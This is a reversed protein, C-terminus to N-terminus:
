FDIPSGSMMDSKRGEETYRSVPRETPNSRPIQPAANNGGRLKDDLNHNGYAFGSLKTCPSIKLAPSGCHYGFHTLHCALQAM